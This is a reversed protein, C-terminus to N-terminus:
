RSTVASRRNAVAFAEAVKSALTAADSYSINSAVAVVIGSDHFTMLSAVIGGLIDGDHGVM